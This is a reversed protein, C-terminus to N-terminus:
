FEAKKALGLPFGRRQSTNARYETVNISNQFNRHRISESRQGKPLPETARFHEPSGCFEIWENCRGDLEFPTKTPFESTAGNRPTRAPQQARYVSGRRM